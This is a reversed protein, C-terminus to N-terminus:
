DALAGLEGDDPVGVPQSVLPLVGDFLVTGRGTRQVEGAVQGDVAKVQGGGEWAGDVVQGFAVVALGDGVGATQNLNEQGPM